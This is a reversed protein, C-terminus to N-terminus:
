MYSATNLKFNQTKLQCLSGYGGCETGTDTLGPGQLNGLVKLTQVTLRM